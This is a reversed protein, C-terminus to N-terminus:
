LQGCISRGGWPTTWPTSASRAGNRIHLPSSVSRKESLTFRRRRRIPARTALAVDLLADGEPTAWLQQGILSGQITKVDGSPLQLHETISDLRPFAVAVRRFFRELAGALTHPDGPMAPM